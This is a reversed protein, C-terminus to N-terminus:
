KSLAFDFTNKSEGEKIEVRLPSTSDMTFIAPVGKGEFTVTRTGAPVRDIAYKGDKVKAGVFQGDERHFTVRGAALPKGDLTVQGSVKGDAAAAPSATVLLGCGTALALLFLPIRLM